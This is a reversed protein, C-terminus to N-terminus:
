GDAYRTVQHHPTLHAWLIVTSGTTVSSLPYSVFKFIENFELEICIIYICIYEHHSLETTMAVPLPSSPWPKTGSLPLFNKEEGCGGPRIQPGGLRRDLPCRPSKERYLAAPAHIQGSVEM